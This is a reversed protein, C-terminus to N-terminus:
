MTSSALGRQDNIRKTRQERQTAIPVIVVASEFITSQAKRHGQHGMEGGGEDETEFTYVGRM